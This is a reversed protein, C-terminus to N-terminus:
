TPPFGWERQWSQADGDEIRAAVDFCETPDSGDYIRRGVIWSLYCDMDKHDFYLKEQSRQAFATRDKTMDHRMTSGDTEMLMAGQQDVCLKRRRTVM